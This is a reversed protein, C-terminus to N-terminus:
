YRLHKATFYEVYQVKSVFVVACHFFGIVWNSHNFASLCHKNQWVFGKSNCVIIKCNLGIELTARTVSMGLVGTWQPHTFTPNFLRASSGDEAKLCISFTLTYSDYMYGTPLNISVEIPTIICM